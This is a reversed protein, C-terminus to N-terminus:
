PTSSGFTRKKPGKIQERLESIEEKLEVVEEKIELYQQYLVVEKVNTKRAEMLDRIGMSYIDNTESKCFDIFAEYVKVPCKTISFNVTALDRVKTKINDESMEEGRHM